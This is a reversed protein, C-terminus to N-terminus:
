ESTGFNFTSIEVPAERLFSETNSYVIETITDPIVIRGPQIHTQWLHVGGVYVVSDYLPHITIANDYWGQRSLLDYDTSSNSERVINWEEAGNDTSFITGSLASGPTYASIYLVEPNNSSIALELRSYESLINNGSFVARRGLGRSADEWSQGGDTSKIVGVRNISAYQVQFNQPSALMQQIRFNSRFVEEWTEGGNM